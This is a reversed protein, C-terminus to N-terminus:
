VFSIMEYNAWATENIYGLINWAIKSSIALQPTFTLRDSDNFEPVVWIDTYPKNAIIKLVGSNDNYCCIYNFYRLVGILKEISFYTNSISDEDCYVDSEMAYFDDVTMLYYDEEADWNNNIDEFIKREIEPFSYKGYYKKYLKKGKEMKKHIKEQQEKMLIELDKNSSKGVKLKEFEFVILKNGEEMKLDEGRLNKM